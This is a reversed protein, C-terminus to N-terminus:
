DRLLKEVRAVHVPNLHSADIQLGEPPIWTNKDQSLGILVIVSFVQIITALPLGIVVGAIIMWSKKINMM